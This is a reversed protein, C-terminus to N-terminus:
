QSKLYVCKESFFFFFFFFFFYWHNQFYDKEDDRPSLMHRKYDSLTLGYGVSSKFTKRCDFKGVRKLVEQELLSMEKPLLISMLAFM